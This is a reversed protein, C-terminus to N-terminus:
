QRWPCYPVAEGAELLGIEDTGPGTKLVGAFVDVVELGLQTARGPSHPLARPRCRSHRPRPRGEAPSCSVAYKRGESMSATPRTNSSPTSRMLASSIVGSTPLRHIYKGRM